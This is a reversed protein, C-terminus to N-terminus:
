KASEQFDSRLSAANSHLPAAASRLLQVNSHLAAFDFIIKLVIYIGFLMQLYCKNSTYNGFVILEFINAINENIKRLNWNQM